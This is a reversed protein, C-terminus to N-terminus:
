EFPRGCYGCIETKFTDVTKECTFRSGTLEAWKQWYPPM